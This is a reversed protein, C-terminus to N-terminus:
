LIGVAPITAALKLLQEKQQKLPKTKLQELPELLQDLCNRIEWPIDEELLEEALVKIKNVDAAGIKTYTYAFREMMIAIGVAFHVLDDKYLLAGSEAINYNTKCPKSALQEAQAAHWYIPFYPYKAARPSKKTVYAKGLEACVDLMEWARLMGKGLNGKRGLAKAMLSSYYMLWYERDIELEWIAELVEQPGMDEHLGVAKALWALAESCDDQVEITGDSFKLFSKNEDLVVTLKSM